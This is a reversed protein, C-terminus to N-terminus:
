EVGSLVKYIGHFDVVDGMEDKINISLRHLSRSSLQKFSLQLYEHRVMVGFQSMTAPLVELVDSPKGNHLNASRNIQPCHVFLQKPSLLQVIDDGVVKDGPTMIRSRSLGLIGNIDTFGHLATGRELTVAARGSSPVTDIILGKGVADQLAKEYTKLNYLGDPVVTSYKGTANAYHVRNNGKDESVNYYGVVYCIEKLAISTVELPIEFEAAGSATDLYLYTEM